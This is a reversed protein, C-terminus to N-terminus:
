EVYHTIDIVNEVRNIRGCIIAGNWNITELNIWVQRKPDAYYGCNGSIILFKGRLESKTILNKTTHLGYGHETFAYPLHRRGGRGKKKSIAIQSKLSEFEENNLQFLFDPPFREKNRKIQEMLRGTPVGYLEALHINLIVRHGRLLLIRQEIPEIVALERNKKM